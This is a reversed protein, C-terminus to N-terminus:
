SSPAPDCAGDGEGLITSGDILPAEEATMTLRALVQHGVPTTSVTEGSTADEIGGGTATWCDVIVFREDHDFQAIVEPSHDSRATVRLGENRHEGLFQRLSDLREGIAVEELDPHDPNAPGGDPAGAEYVVEWHGLYAQLIAAVDATAPVCVTDTDPLNDGLIELGTLPGDIGPDRFATVTWGESTRKLETSLPRRNGTAPKVTAASDADIVELDNRLCDTVTARDGDVNVQATGASSELQGAVEQDQEARATVRSALEAVAADGAVRELQDGDRGTLASAMADIFARHVDLVQEAVPTAIPEPSTGPTVPPTTPETPVAASEPSEVTCATLTLVMSVTLTPLWRHGRSPSALWRSTMGEGAKSIRVM